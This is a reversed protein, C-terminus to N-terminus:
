TYLKHGEKKAESMSRTMIQHEAFFGGDKVLVKRDTYLAPSVSWGEDLIQGYTSEM